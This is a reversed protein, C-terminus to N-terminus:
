RFDPAFLLGGRSWLENLGRELKLTSSMGLNREYSEGYNGVQKVIQYAWDKPLGLGSGLAGELGLFRQIREDTSLKLSDINSSSIQLEEAKIMAFLSWKVLTFWVADGQRVLPGLSLHAIREQLMTAEEPRVLRKQIGNLQTIGGTVADCRGDAFGKVLQDTTDFILTKYAKEMQSLVEKLGQGATTGTLYCFTSGELEKINKVNSKSPVLIGQREHFSVATFHLGLAADRGLTWTTNRSLLDVDGALLATFREKAMLSVYKVKTADGLVAAAVARCIDIDLGSWKGREDTHSFGPIGTSVGCLLHGRERVREKTTAHSLGLTCFLILLTVASLCLTRIMERREHIENWHGGEESDLLGM